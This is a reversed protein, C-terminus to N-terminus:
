NIDCRVYFHQARDHATRTTPPQEGTVYKLIEQTLGATFARRIDTIRACFTAAPDKDRAKTEANAVIIWKKGVDPGLLDM